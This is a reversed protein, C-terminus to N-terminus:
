TTGDEEFPQIPERIMAMFADTGIGPFRDSAMFIKSARAIRSMIEARRAEDSSSARVIRADGNGDLEFGVLSGPALGLAERIDKPVTVQGKSTMSSQYTM